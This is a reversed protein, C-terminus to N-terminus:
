AYGLDEKYKVLIQLLAARAAGSAFYVVQLAAKYKSVETATELALSGVTHISQQLTDVTETLKEVEREAYLQISPGRVKHIILLCWNLQEKVFRRLARTHEGPKFRLGHANGSVMVWELLGQCRTCWRDWYAISQWCSSSLRLVM